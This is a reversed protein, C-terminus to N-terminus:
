GRTQVYVDAPDVGCHQLLKKANERAARSSLHVNVFIDGNGIDAHTVMSSGDSHTPTVNAAYGRRGSPVPLQEVTLQPRSFLWKATGLLGM